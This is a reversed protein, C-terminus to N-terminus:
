FFLDMLKILGILIALLIPFGFVALVSFDYLNMTLGFGTSHHTTSQTDRRKNRGTRAGDGVTHPKPGMSRGRDAASRGRNSAVM